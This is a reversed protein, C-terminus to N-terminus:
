TKAGASGRPGDHKRRSGSAGVQRDHVDVWGDARGTDRGRWILAARRSTRLGRWPRSQLGLACVSPVNAGHRARTRKHVLRRGDLVEVALNESVDQDLRCISCNGPSARIQQSAFVRGTSTMGGICQMSRPSSYKASARWPHICPTQPRRAYVVKRVGFPSLAACWLTEASVCIL